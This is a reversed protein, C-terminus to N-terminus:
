KAPVEVTGVPMGEFYTMGRPNIGTDKFDEFFIVHSETNQVCSSPVGKMLRYGGIKYIYPEM